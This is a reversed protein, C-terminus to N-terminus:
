LSRLTKRFVDLPQAGVITKKDGLFFMPVSTVNRLAAERKAEELRPLYTGDRVAKKMAESDLGADRALEALIDINGIDLGFSFYATFLSAHLELFKGQDRAFEAAQLAQRSNSLLSRDAFTIGFQAGATRLHQMVRTIDEQRFRATMPM